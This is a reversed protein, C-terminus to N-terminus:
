ASSARPRRRTRPSPMWRPRLRRSEASAASQPWPSAPLRAEFHSEAQAISKKAPADRCLSDFRLQPACSCRLGRGGSAPRRRGHPRQPVMGGSCGPGGYACLWVSDQMRKPGLSSCRLWQEDDARRAPLEAARLRQQEQEGRRTPRLMPAREACRPTRDDASGGPHAPAATATRGACPLARGRCARGGAGASKAPSGRSSPRRTKRSTGHLTSGRGSCCSAACRAAALPAATATGTCSVSAARGPACCPM